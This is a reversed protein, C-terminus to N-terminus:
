KAAGLELTTADGSFPFAPMGNRYNEQLQCASVNWAPEGTTDTDDTEDDFETVMKTAPKRMGYTVTDEFLAVEMAITSDM